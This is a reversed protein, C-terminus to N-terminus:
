TLPSSAIPLWDNPPKATDNDGLSWTAYLKTCSEINVPSPRTRTYTYYSAFCGSARASIARSAISYTAHPM